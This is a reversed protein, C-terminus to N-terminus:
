DVDKGFSGKTLEAKLQFAGKVVVQEGSRLGSTVTVMRGIATGSVTVPRAIFKGPAGGPVFVVSRGNVDQVADEPVVVGTRGTTDSTKMITEFRVEAFMGPRLRRTPNSVELRLKVTHTTTDVVGGAFTVRAPFIEGPLSRPSVFAATGSHVRNADAEYLDVTIWVRSLDAVTFLSMTPGAIQGPTANREVVTGRIPTVLSYTAGAGATAGLSGLRAVAANYDADVSRYAAQADLMDKQSSVSQEFLRKEREYTARAGDLNARARAVEGRVQGVDASELFALASGARVQQGLDALVSVVRGEARPAILSVHNADFTITGNAILGGSGSAKAPTMEIGVLRLAASDLAVLSDNGASNAIPPAKETSAPGNRGGIFVILFLMVVAAVMLVPWWRRMAEARWFRDPERPSTDPM